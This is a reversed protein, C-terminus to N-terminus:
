INNNEWYRNAAAITQFNIAIIHSVRILSEVSNAYEPRM